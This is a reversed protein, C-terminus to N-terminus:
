QATILPLCLTDYKASFSNVPKRCWLLISVVLVRTDM